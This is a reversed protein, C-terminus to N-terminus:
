RGVCFVPRSNTRGQFNLLCGTGGNIYGFDHAQTKDTSLLTASWAENIVGPSGDPSPRSAGALGMQPLVFRIGDVEAQAFDNLTPLRWIVSPTSYKGMGGKANDYTYSGPVGAIWNETGLAPSLVEACYSVATVPQQGGGAACNVGGANQVNGAARCWNTGNTVQSSWLLGTRADQWVENNATQRTVLYWTGEGSNGSNVGSWTQNCNAIKASITTYIPGGCDSSPRPAYYATSGTWGEDDVTVNPVERFNSPLSSPAAYTTVEQAQTIQTTGVSRSANSQLVASVTVVTSTGAVSCSATGALGFITATSCVNGAQYGSGLDVTFSSYSTGSAPTYTATTATSSSASSMSTVTNSVGTCIATGTVGLITTGQCVTSALPASPSSCSTTASTDIYPKCSSFTLLALAGWLLGLKIQRLNGM